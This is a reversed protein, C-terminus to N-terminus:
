ELATNNLAIKEIIDKVFGKILLKRASDEDLGRSRLYFLQEPDLKGISAGHGAKVDQETIELSPVVRAKARDSVILVAVKLYSDTRSAGKQIVIVPELEFRSNAELVAKILVRSKLGARTHIIKFSGTVASDQAGQFLGLIETDEELVIDTLPKTFDIILTKM